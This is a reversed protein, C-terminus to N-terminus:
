HWGVIGGEGRGQPQDGVLGVTVEQGGPWERGRVRFGPELPEKGAQCGWEGGLMKVQGNRLEEIGPVKVDMRKRKDRCPAM